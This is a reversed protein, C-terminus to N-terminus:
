FCLEIKKILFIFTIFLILGALFNKQSTTFGNKDVSKNKNDWYYALDKSYKDELSANLLQFFCWRSLGGIGLFFSQLVHQILHMM